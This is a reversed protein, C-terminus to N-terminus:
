LVSGSSPKDAGERDGVAGAQYVSTSTAGPLLARLQPHSRLQLPQPM